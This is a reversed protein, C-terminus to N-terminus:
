HMRRLALLFQIFSFRVADKFAEFAAEPLYACTAGSDLITGFDQDFVWPNLPLRKGAVHIEKLDTNYYPSNGDWSCLLHEM